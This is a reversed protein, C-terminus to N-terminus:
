LYESLGLQAKGATVQIEKGFKIQMGDTAAITRIGTQQEVFKAEAPPSSFIMKAGFHTLVATEPKAESILKAADETSMHYKWPAGRPRMTCLILLRTGAYLGGLGDFYQTDSTYGVEGVGLFGFRFGVADPDSHMAKTATIKVGNLDFSQGPKADMVAELLSQHYKSISAECVENGFLVSHAAILYGGRKTMGRTMAEIFVEADTYHDPHDHSVLVAKVKMPDLKEEVSRVIAGPGPDLQMHFNDAIFRIGGTWRKQTVTVFRGGGTGLFILQAGDLNIM